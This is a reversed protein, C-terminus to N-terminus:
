LLRGCYVARKCEHQLEPWQVFFLDALRLHYLLTGSLSLSKIRAISEVYIIRGQWPLYLRCPFDWRTLSIEISICSTLSTYRFIAAALCIPICTGPGNVLM